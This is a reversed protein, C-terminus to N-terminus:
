EGKPVIYIDGDQLNSLESPDTESYILRRVCVIAGSENTEVLYNAKGTIAGASTVNGHAHSAAAAAINTRAQQRQDGTKTQADYRVCAEPDFMSVYQELTQILAAFRQEAQILSPFEKAKESASCIATFNFQATTVLSEGDDSYIELRGVNLGNEIMDAHVEVTVINGSVTIDSGEVDTDQSGTGSASTILLRIRTDALSVSEGEDTVSIKFINGVDGAIVNPLDISNQNKLDLTFEYTKSVM